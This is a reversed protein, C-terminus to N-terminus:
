RLLLDQTQCEFPISLHVAMKNLSKDSSHNAGHVSLCVAAAHCFSGATNLVVLCLAPGKKSTESSLPPKGDCLQHTNRLPGADPTSIHMELSTVCHAPPGCRTTTNGTYASGEPTGSDLLRLGAFKKPSRLIAGTVRRSDCRRPSDTTIPNCIQLCVRPSSAMEKVAARLFLFSSGYPKM